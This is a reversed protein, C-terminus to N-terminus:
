KALESAITQNCDDAMAPNLFPCTNNDTNLMFAYGKDAGVKAIVTNLRNYLPQMLEAESQTLLQQAETKFKLSEEMLQQLEKQRKLLINEPFNKQGEVFENFKRSFDQEARQLEADYTDRLQQLSNMAEAYEPMAKVAAEYSFYGFRLAPQQDPAAAETIAVAEQAMMGIALLLALTLTFLKKM